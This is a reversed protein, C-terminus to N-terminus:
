HELWNFFPNSQRVVVRAAQQFARYLYRNFSDIQGRKAKLIAAHWAEIFPEAHEELRIGAQISAKARLLIGYYEYVASANGSFYRSFAHFIDAPIRKSLVDAPVATDKIHHQPKQKFPFSTETVSIVEQVTSAVPKDSIPRSSVPSQDLPKKVPLIILINAGKGGRIERITYVKQIMQKEALRNMMRRVTKDSCGMEKAITAVKLHAAGPFKVAYRSILHFLEREKDSVQHNALHEKVAQNLAEKTEFSQYKALWM